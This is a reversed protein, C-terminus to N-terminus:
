SFNNHSCWSLIINEWLGIDVMDHIAILLIGQSYIPISECFVFVLVYFWKMSVISSALLSYLEGILAEM